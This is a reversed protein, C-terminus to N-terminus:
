SESSRKTKISKDEKESDSLSKQKRGFVFVAALSAIGGTGFFIAPLEANHLALYAGVFLCLIVVLFGFFQGLRAENFDRNKLKIDADLAKNQLDINSQLQKDQYERRHKAEKEALQIIRKAFGSSIKEYEALIIPHPLPGKFSQRLLVQILEEKEPQNNSKSKPSPKQSV